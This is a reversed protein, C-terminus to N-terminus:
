GARVFSEVQMWIRGSSVGCGVDVWVDGVDAEICLL